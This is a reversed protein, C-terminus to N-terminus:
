RSDVLTPAPVRGAFLRQLCLAEFLHLAIFYTTFSVVFPVPRASLVTLVIAVYVGFFVLKVAFAVVMLSMLLEPRSPYIRAVILWTAAAGLLPALMGFLVERDSAFGPAVALVAWSGISAGAMWWLPKM